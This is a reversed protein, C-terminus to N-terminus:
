YYSCLILSLTLIYKLLLFRSKLSTSQDPSSGRPILAVAMYPLHGQENHQFPLPYGVGIPLNNSGMSYGTWPKQPFFEKVSTEMKKQDNFLRSSLFHVMSIFLYYYSSALEPIKNCSAVKRALRQDLTLVLEEEDFHIVTESFRGCGRPKQFSTLAPLSSNM